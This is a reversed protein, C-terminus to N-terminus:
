VAGPIRAICERAWREAVDRPVKAGEEIIAAREEFAERRREAELGARRDQWGELARAQSLVAGVTAVGGRAKM